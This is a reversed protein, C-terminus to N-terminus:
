KFQPNVEVNRQLFNERKLRINVVTWLIVKYFDSSYKVDTFSIKTTPVKDDSPDNKEFSTKRSVIKADTLCIYKVEQLTECERGTLLDLDFVELKRFLNFLLPCLIM